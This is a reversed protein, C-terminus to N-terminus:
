GMKKALIREIEEMRAETEKNREHLMAALALTLGSAKGYDVMKGEPTDIVMPEGLETKEIDQAMPSIFKGEGAGPKEPNKYEYEYAKLANVFEELKDEPPADKNKKGDEDSSQFAKAIGAGIGIGMKEHGSKAEGMAQATASPKKDKEEEEPRKLEGVPKIETKKDEDSFAKKMSDALTIPKKNKKEDEDSVAAAIGQGIGGILGGRAQSASDYARQNVGMTGLRQEGRLEELKRAQDDRYMQMEGAMQAFAQQQKDNLARQAMEADLNAKSASLDQGRMSESVGALQQRAALQEQIRATAADRAAQARLDQSQQAVQRLGQGATLGRQSAALAMAQAINADTARNFQDTALSPGRGASQDALQQALTAQYARSQNAQRQDLSAAGRGQAADRAKQAAVVEHTTNAAGFANPDYQYENAKFQGVGLIGADDKSGFLAGGVKGGVKEVAKAAGGM